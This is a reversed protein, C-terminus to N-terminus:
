VVIDRLSQNFMACNFFMDRIKNIDDIRKKERAEKSIDLLINRTVDDISTMYDHESNVSSFENNM